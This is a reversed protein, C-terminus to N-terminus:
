SLQNELRKKLTKARDQVEKKNTNVLPIIKSLQGNVFIDAGYFVERKKKDLKGNTVGYGVRSYVKYTVKNKM